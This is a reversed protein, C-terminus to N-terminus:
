PPLARSAASASACASCYPSSRRIPSRSSSLRSSAAADHRGRHPQACAHHHGPRDPHPRVPGSAHGGQAHLLPLHRHFDLAAVPVFPRLHARPDDPGFRLRRRSDDRLGHQHHSLRRGSHEGRHAHRRHLEPSSIRAHHGVGHRHGPEQAPRLPLGQPGRRLHPADRDQGHLSGLAPPRHGRGHPHAVAYFGAETSFHTSFLRIDKSILPLDM